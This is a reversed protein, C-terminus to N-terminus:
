SVGATCRRRTAADDLIMQATQGVRSLDHPRSVAYVPVGTALRALREAALRPERHPALENPLASLHPALQAMAAARELQVIAPEDCTTSRAALV